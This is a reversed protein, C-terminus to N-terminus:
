SWIFTGKQSLQVRPKSLAGAIAEPALGAVFGPDPLYGSLAGEPAVALAGAHLQDLGAILCELNRTIDMRVPLQLIAAQLAKVM